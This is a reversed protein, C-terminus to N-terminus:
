WNSSLVALRNYKRKLYITSNKYLKTLIKNANNSFCEIFFTNHKWRKDRKLDSFEPFIEKISLLFEKTSVISLRLKGSSSFSICGNGDVYGRIFHYKLEEHKFIDNPFKVKLSKQPICGLSILKDRFYKNTVTLRCRQFEKGNYMSKGTKVPSINKLFTRYKELHEKDKISLSLEVNNNNKAVNGDAYLFGLWYSKEEDDICDFVTNDFKLLNHYNPTNVHLIKLYKQVTSRSVNLKTAIENQTLGSCNLKVLEELNIM